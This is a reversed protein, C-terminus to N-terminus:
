GLPVRDRPSSRMAPFVLYALLIAFALHI